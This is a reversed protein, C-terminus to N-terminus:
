FVTQKISDIQQDSLMVSIVNGNEDIVIFSIPEMLVFASKNGAKELMEMAKEYARFAVLGDTYADLENTEYVTDIDTALENKQLIPNYEKKEISVIYMKKENKVVTSCGVLFLSILIYILPTYIWKMM